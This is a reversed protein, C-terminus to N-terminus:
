KRVSKYESFNFQVTSRKEKKTNDRNQLTPSNESDAVETVLPLLPEVPLEIIVTDRIIKEVIRQKVEKKTLYITDRLVITETSAFTENALQKRYSDLEEVLDLYAMRISDLSKQTTALQLNTNAMMLKYDKELESPLPAITEVKKPQENKTFQAPKLLWSAVFGFPILLLLLWLKSGSKKKENSSISVWIKEKRALAEASDQEDMSSLLDKMKDEFNDPHM